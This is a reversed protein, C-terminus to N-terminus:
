RISSVGVLSEPKKGLTLLCLKSFNTSSINSITQKLIQFDRDDKLKQLEKQYLRLVSSYAFTPKYDGPDKDMIFCGMYHYKFQLARTLYIADLLKEFLIPYERKIKEIAMKARTLEDINTYAIM